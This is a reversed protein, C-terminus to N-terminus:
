YAHAPHAGISINLQLSVRSEDEVQGDNITEYQLRVSSFESPVFAVLATHRKSANISKSKNLGLYDYRYQAYWRQAMQYKLFSVLGSLKGNAAGKRDKELFENGWEFSHYKGGDIPRWKLTLDAGYLNTDLHDSNKGKAGSFGLELTTSDSLDWLNKFRGIVAKDSKKGSNFLDANDGQTYDLTIESFWPLPSLTSVGIGTENLGEEGLITTNILPANIFPFAHSHLQNHKGLPMKSKGLRLTVYPVSITEVYTEEPEIGYSGNEEAVSFLAKATFYADVDSSFQLEAEQLKMGDGSKDRKSHQDLFLMNIGIDPNFANSKTKPAQAFSQVSFLLISLIYIVKM